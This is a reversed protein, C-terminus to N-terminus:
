DKPQIAVKHEEQIAKLLAPDNLIKLATVGVTKAAWNLSARANESKGEELEVAATKIYFRCLGKSGYWTNKNEWFLLTPIMIPAM